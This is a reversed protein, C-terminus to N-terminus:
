IWLIRNRNLNLQKQVEVLKKILEEQGIVKVLNVIQQGMVDKNHYFITTYVNDNLILDCLIDKDTIDLSHGFIYLNHREKKKENNSM